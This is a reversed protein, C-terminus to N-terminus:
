ICFFSIGDVYYPTKPPYRRPGRDARDQPNAYGNAPSQGKDVTDEPAAM